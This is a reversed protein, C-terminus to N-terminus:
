LRSRDDFQALDALAAEYEAELDAYDMGKQRRWRVILGKLILSEDILATDTDSTMEAGASSWETSQYQASVTAANALYPWLQVTDDQALFYRPVGSVMTLTNWEPRTLARLTTTGYRMTVGQGFRAFDAPMTHTKATGDGTLTATKRLIGWDVRRALEEGTENVMQMAEQWQRYPSSAVVDPLALGVNKALATCITLLTM